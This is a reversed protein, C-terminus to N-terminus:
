RVSVYVCLCLRKYNLIFIKYRCGGEPGPSLTFPIINVDRFLFFGPWDFGSARKIELPTMLTPNQFLNIHNRHSPTNPYPLQGPDRPNGGHDFRRHDRGSWKVWSRLFIIFNRLILNRDFGPYPDPDVHLDLQNPGFAEGGGGPQPGGGDPPQPEGGPPQPGGGPPQLGGGPPQPGQPGGGPPDGGGDPPQPGPPPPPPAPPPAPPPPAPPIQHFNDVVEADQEDVLDPPFDDADQEEPYEDESDMTTIYTEEEDEQSNIIEEM